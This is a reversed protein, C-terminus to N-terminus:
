KNQKLESFFFLDGLIRRGFNNVIEVDTTLSRKM